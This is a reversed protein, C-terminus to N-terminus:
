GGSKQAKLVRLVEGVDPLQRIPYVKVFIIKGKENVIVNARESFGEARLLGMSKAVGGHPWFDALLRTNKIKLSKAWAAKSPVSDVSLGVAATNLKDFSKKNKELAQMQKACVSTWALPHFSLLVKKGRYESLHFDQGNQDKLSFVKVKKGEQLRIKDAM